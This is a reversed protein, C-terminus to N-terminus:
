ISLNIIAINFKISHYTMQCNLEKIINITTNNKKNKQLKAMLAYLLLKVLAAYM